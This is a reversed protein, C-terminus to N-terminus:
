LGISSCLWCVYSGGNKPRKSSCSAIELMEGIENGIDGRIKFEVRSVTKDTIQV